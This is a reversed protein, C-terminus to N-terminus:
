KEKFQIVVAGDARLTLKIYAIRGNPCPSHYVDQWVRHDDHTTMSKLLMGRELGLVVARAQAYSLDMLSYGTIATHTFCKIGRLEVEAKVADLNYHPTHKEM